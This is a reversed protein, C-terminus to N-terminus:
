GAAMLLVQCDVYSLFRLRASVTGGFTTFGSIYTMIDLSRYVGTARM